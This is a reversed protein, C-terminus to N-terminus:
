QYLNVAQGTTCTGCTSDYNRFKQKIRLKKLM